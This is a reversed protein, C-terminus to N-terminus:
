GPVQVKNIRVDYLIDKTLKTTVSSSDQKLIIEVLQFMALYCAQDPDKAEVFVTPFESNYEYLRFQKLRGHVLSLDILVKYIKM